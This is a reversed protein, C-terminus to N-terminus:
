PQERRHLGYGAFLLAIGFALVAVAWAPADWWEYDRTLYFLAVATNILGAFYFAKRQRLRSLM